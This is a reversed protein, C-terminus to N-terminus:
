RSSRAVVPRAFAALSEARVRLPGRDGLRVAALEGAAIHRYVSVKSCRLLYAVERVTLLGRDSLPEGTGM